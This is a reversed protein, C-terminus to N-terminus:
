HVKVSSYNQMNAYIMVHEAFPAMIAHPMGAYAMADNVWDNCTHFLHYNGKANYFFDSEGYGKCYFEPKSSSSEAYFYKSIYDCLLRYKEKSIFMSVCHKSESPIYNMFEVHLLAKTPIFLARFTTIFSPFQKEFSELYFDKDGWGFSIFKCNKFATDLGKDSFEMLWNKGGINDEEPVVIDTHFGNSRIFIRIQPNGKEGPVYIFVAAVSYFFYLFVLIFPIALVALVTRLHKNVKKKM